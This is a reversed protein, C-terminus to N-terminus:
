LRDLIARVHVQTAPPVYDLNCQRDTVEWFYVDTNDLLQSSTSKLGEGKDRLTEEIMAAEKNRGQEYLVAATILRAKFQGQSLPMQSDDTKNISLYLRVLQEFEPKEPNVATVVQGLDYAVLDYAFSLQHTVALGAYYKLRAGIQLVRKPDSEWLCEAMLRYQYLLDYVAHIDQAKIAERMFNNFYRLSLDLSGADARYAAALAFHRHSRGIASIVDPVKALAAKFALNSQQLLKMEVWIRDRNVLDIAERSLGPFHASDIAFWSAEHGPKLELYIEACRDLAAVGAIAVDRDSRDLARLIINGLNRIGRGLADQRKVVKKRVPGNMHRVLDRSVRNIIAEPNLFRFVSFFYPVVVVLSLLVLCFSITLHIVPAPTEGAIRATWVAHGASFVFFGLVIRNTPAKVFIDILQPTYMNATIPIALFLSAFVTSILTVATRSLSNVMMLRDGVDIPVLGDLPVQELYGLAVFYVVASFLIALVAGVNLQRRARIRYRRTPEM